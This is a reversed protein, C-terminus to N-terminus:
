AEYYSRFFKRDAGAIVTLSEKGTLELEDTYKKLRRGNSGWEAILFKLEADEKIELGEPLLEKLRNVLEEDEKEFCELAISKREKFIEAFLRRIKEKDESGDKYLVAAATRSCFKKVDSEVYISDDTAADYLLILLGAIFGAVAGFVAWRVCHNVPRLVQVDEHDWQEIAEFGETESAFGSLAEALASQVKESTQADAMDVYVRIMRIDSSTPISTAKAIDEKSVGCVASARGAIKDSDLVDNWTYDNYYLQTESATRQDFDIYYLASCRYPFSGAFVYTVLLYIVAFLVASVATAAFVKWIRKKSILVFRKLDMIENNENM